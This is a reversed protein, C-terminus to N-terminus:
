NGLEPQVLIGVVTIQLPDDICTPRPALGMADVDCVLQSYVIRPLVPLKEM